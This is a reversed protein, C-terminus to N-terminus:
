VAFASAAAHVKELRDLGLRVVFAAGPRYHPDLHLSGGHKTALQAAMALGVGQGRSGPRNYGWEFIREQLEPPVGPGDDAVLLEVGGERIRTFIRVPSGPAHEAANQLLINVIEALEDANARVPISPPCWLVEQGQVRRAMVIPRLIDDIELSQEDARPEAHVLRQLRAAEQALMAKLHDSHPQDLEAHRILDTASAIGAITGKVEHLQEVGERARDRLVLLQQQLHQVAQQDDHTTRLLLDFATSTVLVCTALGAAIAIMAWGPQTVLGSVALAGAVGWLVAAAALRRSRQPLLAARRITAALALGVLLVLSAEGATAWPRGELSPLSVVSRVVMLVLGLGIGVAIPPMDPHNTEALKITALLSLGVVIGSSLFAQEELATEAGTVLMPLCQVGVIINAAALWAVGPRPQLRWAIFYFVSCALAVPLLMQGAVGAAGAWTRAEPVTAVISAFSATVVVAILVASTMSSGARDRNLVGQSM